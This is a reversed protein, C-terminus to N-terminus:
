SRAAKLQVRNNTDDYGQTLRGHELAGFVWAKLEDYEAVTWDLAEDETLEWLRQRATEMFLPAAFPEDGLQELWASLWQDLLAKRGEASHLVALDAPAPLEFATEMEHIEHRENDDEETTMEILVPVRSLDLEGKFAKQSLAGYLSELDTLSKHYHFKIGDIKEVIAAFQGRDDAHHAVDALSFLFFDVVSRM